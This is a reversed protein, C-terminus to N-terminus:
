SASMQVSPALLRYPECNQSRLELAEVDQLQAAVEFRLICSEGPLLDVFGDLFRHNRTADTVVTGRVLRAVYEGENTVEIRGTTVDDRAVSVETVRASLSTEPLRSLAEFLPIELEEQVGLPDTALQRGTAESLLSVFLHLNHRWYPSYTRIDQQEWPAQIDLTADRKHGAPDSPDGQGTMPYVRLAKTLSATFAVTRGKGHQGTALLPYEGIQWHVESGPKPTTRSFGRLPFADLKLGATSRMAKHARIPLARDWIADHPMLEVPLVEGLPTADLQAGRGDGGHFCGQGGTHILGVGRSVATALNEWEAPHFRHAATDWGTFWIVDFRGALNDSWTSDQPHRTTEDVAECIIGPVDTLAHTIPETYRQQGILLIRIPRDFPASITRIWQSTETVPGGQHDKANLRLLFLGPSTPLQLSLRGAVQGTDPAAQCRGQWAWKEQGRVDLLRATLDLDYQQTTDNVVWLDRTWEGGAGHPALPKRDDVSLLVPAYGAKLAFYGMKPRQRHDVVTFKIGPYMERYSWTRAGAINAFRRRRYAEAAYRLGYAQYWQLADLFLELTAPSRHAHLYMRAASTCLGAYDFSWRYAYEEVDIPLGIRGKEGEAVGWSRHEPIFEKLTEPVPPAIGGFESVFAPNRDHHDTYDGFPLAGEWIHEEKFDCFSPHLIADSDEYAVIKGIAAVFESYDGFAWRENNRTEAFVGWVALSPHGRRQRVINRVEGLAWAWHQEFRPYDPSVAKMPGLVTFPLEQFVLIGLEDCADYFDRSEIFSFVLIHNMNCDRMMKADRRLEKGDAAGPLINAFPYWAGKLFLRQGNIRYTLTEEDRDITRIGFRTEAATSPADVVSVRAAYLNQPGTDCTWWLHPEPLSIHGSTSSEGPMVTATLRRTIATGMFNAPEVKVDLQVEVPERLCSSWSCLVDLTADDGGFEVTSFAVDKLELPNRVVLHVDRWLGMPLVTQGSLPLADWYHLLSGKMYETNSIMVSPATSPQLYFTRDHITWPCSVAVILENSKGNGDILDTVDLAFTSFAGEHSGALRGNVFVDCFYDVGDFDLFLREDECRSPSDFERRYVWQSHNVGTLHATDTWLDDLGIQKQVHGPVSVGAWTPADRLSPLPHQSPPPLPVRHMSWDDGSLCLRQACM